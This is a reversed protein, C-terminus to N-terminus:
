LDVTSRYLFPVSIMLNFKVQDLHPKIYGDPALELIHLPLLAAGNFLPFVRESFVKQLVPYTSMRSLTTERYNVIVSDFHKASWSSKKLGRRAEEALQREEEETVIDRILKFDNQFIASCSHSRTCILRTHRLFSPMAFIPHNISNQVSNWDGSSGRIGTDM